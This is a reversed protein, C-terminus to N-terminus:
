YFVFCNKDLIMKNEVKNDIIWKKLKTKDIYVNYNEDKVFVYHDSYKYRELYYDMDPNKKGNHYLVKLTSLALFIDDIRFGTAESIMQLTVYKKASLEGYVFLIAITRCWYNLYTIKGLESLPHEPGSIQQEYKTLNYSFDILKTGLRRKQYCPMVCICSLNNSDWSLLERSYFGMPVEHRDLHQYIVYFDFYELHYFISKNDLFFKAILCMCQCFLKHNVGKVKRIVTEGDNYMVKGPLKNKSKCYNIHQEWELQVDTFKFCYPCFYLTELWPNKNESDVEYKQSNRISDNVVTELPELDVTKFELETCMTNTIKDHYPEKFLASNGYWTNFQYRGLRITKVNKYDIFGYEEESNGEIESKAEKVPSVSSSVNRTSRRLKTPSVDPVSGNKTSNDVDSM